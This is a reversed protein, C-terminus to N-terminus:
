GIWDSPVYQEISGGVYTCNEEAYYTGESEVYVACDHCRTEEEDEPLLLKSKLYALWTAM